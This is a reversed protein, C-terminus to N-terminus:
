RDYRLQWVVISDGAKLRKEGDGGVAAAAVVAVLKMRKWYVQKWSM